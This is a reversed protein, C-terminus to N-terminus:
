ATQQVPTALFSIPIFYTTGNLKIEARCALAVGNRKIQLNKFGQPADDSPTLLKREIYQLFKSELFTKALTAPVDSITEGTFADEMSKAADLAIQDAVYMAQFSNYVENGDKSYSTQDSVFVYGGDEHAVTPLLGAVLADDTESVEDGTWEGAAHRSGSVNKFKRTLNRYGAAAQGCAALVSDMWPHFWEVNGTTASLVAQDLFSVIVRASAMTGAKEKSDAYTGRYSVFGLRNRRAKLKAMAIVHTKVAAHVGDITWTSSADTLGDITDLSADRSVLPVIFNARVKRCADIANAFATSTTGGRAGNALFAVSQVAPLGAAAQVAPDGLQVLSLNNGVSEFFRYADVKIRATQAGFQTACTYTGDDLATAPLQGLSTTGPSASWGTQASIYACLDSITPFSTLSIAPLAGGSGGTVSSTVTTDSITITATTGLYSVKMGIEGGATASDDVSDLQRAVSLTVRQEAASTMLKASGTKSVWTVATTTGLQFACRSLLDTGGTLECLELSKGRGSIVTGADVSITVPAYVILDNAPTATVVGGADNQPAVIAAGIISVGDGANSLKTCTISTSTAATVVYAGANVTTALPGAIVSGSPIVVTDGVTPTVTFSGGTYGITITNGTQGTIALTGVSAQITSRAAGGTATVGSMGDVATVFAAPSGNLAVTAATALADGNVRAGVQLTGVAPIFTFSGTTPVIEAVAETVQRSILNGLAGGQRDYLTGYSGGGVATLVSSAKTSTNTKVIIVKQLSGPIRDDSLAASGAQMADVIPGSVYKARVADVEDPGFSNDALKSEASWVPGADAEGVIVVVGSGPTGQASARVTLKATAMPTILTQDADQYIQPM